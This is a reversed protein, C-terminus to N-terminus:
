ELNEWSSGGSFIFPEMQTDDVELYCGLYIKGDGSAKKKYTQDQMLEKQFEPSLKLRIPYVKTKAIYQKKGKLLDTTASM